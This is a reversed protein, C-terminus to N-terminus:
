KLPNIVKIGAYDQGESLDESWVTSAGAQRAAALILADWFSTKWQLMEAFGARLLAVGNEIVQWRTYDEMTEGVEVLPVGKRQLNVALEQLVQVSIWSMTKQRWLEGVLKKAKQYKEGADRDHAYVLINTDVFLDGPM